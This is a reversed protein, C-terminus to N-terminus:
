HVFDGLHPVVRTLRFVGWVIMLAGAAEPLLWWGTRVHEDFLAVGLLLSVAADGITLAPQSAVLPGAQLANELLLLAAVGTLAFGYTQWTTLFAPLGADALRGTASKMLAATLANGVAAGAGLVAARLLPSSSGRAVAVAAGMAGLTVALVPIWQEMAAQRRTGSPAAAGLLLALGAVVTAIAWWGAAPLRRHLLPVAILLAFPLELIFVPQVLAMPGNVLALAQFVAAGTVGAIGILWAPRRVLARLLALGGGRDVTSAAKRQFATGVANSAAGLVAFFVALVIM